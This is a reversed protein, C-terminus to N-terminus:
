DDSTPEVVRDSSYARYTTKCGLPFYASRPVALFRWQHQTKETKHMGSLKSEICPTMFEVYDPTVYVDQVTAQLNEHRFCREIMSKYEAFTLCQANRFISWIIAFCADIDEHTHGVPLRTFYIAKTMRKAVLLELYALLEANANECGGDAQIYIEEPYCQNRAYWAELQMLFCHINLNAGKKVTNITRYITVGHGHEKIGTIIQKIPTSFSNQTGLYPVRCHNQDMGDIIVSMVREKTRNCALAANVREKYRFLLLSYLHDSRYM